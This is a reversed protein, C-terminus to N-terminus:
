LPQGDEPSYIDEAPDDWFELTGSSEVARMMQEPTPDAPVTYCISAYMVTTQTEEDDLDRPKLFIQTASSM